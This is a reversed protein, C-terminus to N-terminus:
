KYTDTQMDRSVALIVKAKTVYSHLSTLVTLPVPAPLREHTRRHTHAIHTHTHTHINSSNLTELPQALHSNKTGFAFMTQPQCKWSGQTKLESKSRPCDRETVPGCQTTETQSFHHGGTQVQM